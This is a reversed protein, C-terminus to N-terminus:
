AAEGRGAAGEGDDEDGAEDEGQPAPDAPRSAVRALSLGEGTEQVLFVDCAAGDPPAVGAIVPAGHALAAEQAEPWPSRGDWALLASPGVAEIMEPDSGALPVVLRTAGSVLLDLADDVSALRTELWLEGVSALRRVHALVDLDDGAIRVFLPGRGGVASRWPALSERGDLSPLDRGVARGAEVVFGPVREPLAM